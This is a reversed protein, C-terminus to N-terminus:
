RRMDRCEEKVLELTGLERLAEYHAEEPTTGGAVKEETLKELHFRLEETLEQEVRNKRFLSRLRLPLKYIWRMM